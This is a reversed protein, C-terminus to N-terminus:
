FCIMEINLDLNEIGHHVLIIKKEREKAIIQMYDYCQTFSSQDLGSLMEDFILISASSTLARILRVRQSQGRSLINTLNDYPENLKISFDNLLKEYNKLELDRGLYINENISGPLLYLESSFYAVDSVFNEYARLLVSKGWGSPASIAYILNPKKLFETLVSVRKQINKSDEQNFPKM